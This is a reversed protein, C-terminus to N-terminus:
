KATEDRVWCGVPYHINRGEDAQMVMEIPMQVKANISCGCASCIYLGPDRRSEPVLANITKYFISCSCAKMPNNLPCASCAAQRKQLQEVPVVKAGKALWRVAAASFRTVSSVTLVATEDVPRLEDNPGESVCENNSLRACIQREMDEIAEALSARPLKKYSRHQVIKKALDGHSEGEIRLRTDPQIYVWGRPPHTSKSRLRAM